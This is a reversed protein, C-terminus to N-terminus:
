GAAVDAANAQIRALAEGVRDAHELPLHSWIPLSIVQSALHDTVPLEPSAVDRYATQRHVPPSYYPRTQIGEARLADVVRERSCGFTAADILITFDKYSSRAGDPM